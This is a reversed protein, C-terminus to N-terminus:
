VSNSMFLSDVSAGNIVIVEATSPPFTLSRASLVICCDLVVVFIKLIAKFLGVPFGVEIAVKSVNSLVVCLLAEYKIVIDSEM